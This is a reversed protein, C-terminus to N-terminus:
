DAGSHGHIHDLAERLDSPLPDAAIITHAGAQIEITRCRLATRVFKRISWGTRAETWRSIALAAFVITLHAEISDRLHHYIPRAQLDHKSMRFSKEIEFLRHYAGIVFDATVPTGDPCARLNTVYGKLGALARAKAELERNVSKAGGALQIFRNRKVPTKGAVTAAM